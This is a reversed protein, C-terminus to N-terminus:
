LSRCWSGLRLVPSDEEEIFCHQGRPAANCCREKKKQARVEFGSQLRTTMEAARRLVNGFEGCSIAVCSQFCERRILLSLSRPTM